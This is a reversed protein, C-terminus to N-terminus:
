PATSTTTSASAASTPSSRKKARSRRSACCSSRWASAELEIVLALAGEPPEDHYYTWDLWTAANTEAGAEELTRDFAGAPRKETENFM